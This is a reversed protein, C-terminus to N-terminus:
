RGLFSTPSWGLHPRLPLPLDPPDESRLSLPFLGLQPCFCLCGSRKQVAALRVHTPMAVLVEVLARGEQFRCFWDLNPIRHGRGAQPGIVRSLWPPPAWGRHAPGTQWSPLRHSAVDSGPPPFRAIAPHTCPTSLLLPGGRGEGWSVQSSLCAAASGHPTAHSIIPLLLPCPGEPHSAGARGRCLPTTGGLSRGQCAPVDTCFCVTLSGRNRPPVTTFFGGALAPSTLSGPKTGPDPLDGPHSFPLGSWYEQRSFGM